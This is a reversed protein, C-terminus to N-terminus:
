PLMNSFNQLAKVIHELQGTLYAVLGVSAPIALKKALEKLFADGLSACYLAVSKAAGGLASAISLLRGREPKPKALESEAEALTAVVKEVDQRFAVEPEILEPPNNHGRQAVSAAQELGQRMSELQQRLAAIEDKLRYKEEIIAIREAVASPGAHWIDDPILAVELQLGWNLPKGSIAAEWWRQWFLASESKTPGTREKVLETARFGPRDSFYLPRELLDFGSEVVAADSRLHDGYMVSGLNFSLAHDLPRGSALELIHFLLVEASGYVGAVDGAVSVDEAVSYYHPRTVESLISQIESLVRNLPGLLAPESVKCAVGALFATQLVYFGFADFRDQAWPVSLVATWRPLELLVAKHLFAKQVKPQCGQWWEVFGAEDRIDEARM